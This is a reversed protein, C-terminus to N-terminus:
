TLPLQEDEGIKEGQRDTQPQRHRQPVAVRERGLKRARPQDEGDRHRRDGREVGEADVARNEARRARRELQRDRGRGHERREQEDEDAPQQRRRIEVGRDRHDEPHGRHERHGADARGGAEEQLMESGLEPVLLRDTNVTGAGAPDLRGGRQRQPTFIIRDEEDVVIRRQMSRDDVADGDPRRLGQRIEDAAVVYLAYQQRHWRGAPRPAALDDLIQLRAGHADHGHGAQRIQHGARRLDVVQLLDLDLAPPEIPLSSQRWIARFARARM